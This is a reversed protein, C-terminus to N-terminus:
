ARIVELAETFVESPVEMGWVPEGLARLGVFGSRGATVKKDRGAAAVIQALPPLPLSVPLGLRELLRRTRVGVVPDLSLITESVRIAVLLGLAVARGHTVAGYGLAAELAHATTHGLNLVARRGTDREDEQVVDAKYSVCRKVVAGLLGAERRRLAETDEEMKGLLDEGALLGYKVVEGLGDVFEEERLTELVKQDIVVLDPQYFAGVLNKGSTLNVATKGGVGSDVQALLSTPIQWLGIGRHYTAAAFGALDGVVGGGLAVLVDDRRCGSSALWEWCRALSATSKSEEGAPIVLTWERAAAPHLLAMVHDGWAAHVNTDTVLFLRGGRATVQHAAAALSSLVGPGGIILSPRVTGSIRRGWSQPWAAGTAKVLWAIEEALRESTADACPIVWDASERYRPYREALLAAFRESDQALPRDSGAVRQWATGAAVDLFVLGGRATLARVAAPSELTGGGLALVLDEGSETELGPRHPGLLGRLLDVERARFAGEGERAFFAAISEGAEKVFWEDLDVFRSGLLRAVEAGVSTKGSGMFGALTVLPAM